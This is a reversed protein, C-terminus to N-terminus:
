PTPVTISHGDFTTVTFSHSENYTRAYDDLVGLAVAEGFRLSHTYDSRYHVGGMNRAISINAALKNLEGGVTLRGADQGEYAQHATGDANAVVPDPIAHSEDFWAKLLTVCAGAVAAHGAGYSPHTPSGEPFAQALLYSGTEERVRQVVSSSLIDEHLPYEAKETLHFHIRGGLAEPRLRRHVHWKHFWMARLSSGAVQALLAQMHPPGFTGFGAEAKTPYPNGSDFPTGLDLLILCAVLYPQYLHDFHVYHALDRANRIYRRETDILDNPRANVAAGRQSDLWNEESSMYDTGPRATEQRQSIALTGFQTDRLLLQSVYPGVVDGPTFGRFLTTPTICGDGDLPGQPASFRNLDETATEVLEHEEYDSFGVDRLLAMWYVEGMEAAAVASDIRPAPPLTLAAPDPGELAYALGTRPSTLRRQGGLPVADFDEPRGSRLAKLLARYSAVEVEGRENHALGKTYSAIAGPYETDEGNSAHVPFPRAFAIEALEQHIARASLRRTPM